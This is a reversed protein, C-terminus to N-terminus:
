PQRIFVYKKVNESSVANTAPSVPSVTSRGESVPELLPTKGAAASDADNSAVSDGVSSKAESKEPILQQLPESANSTSPAASAAAAEAGNLFTTTTSIEVSGEVPGIEMPTIETVTTSTAATVSSTTAVSTGSNTANANSTSSSITTTTVATSLNQPQEM